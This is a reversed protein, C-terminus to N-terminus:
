TCIIIQAHLIRYVNAQLCCSPCFMSSVHDSEVESLLKEAEQEDASVSKRRRLESM